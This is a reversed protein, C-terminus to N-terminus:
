FCLVLASSRTYLIGVCVCLHKIPEQEPSGPDALVLLFM